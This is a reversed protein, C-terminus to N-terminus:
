IEGAPKLCLFRLKGEVVRGLGVFENELYVRATEGKALMSGNEYEEFPLPNGNRIAARKEERAAVSPLHMLPLDIHQVAM